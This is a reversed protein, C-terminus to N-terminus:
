DAAAPLCISFRTGKGGREPPSDVDIWGDHEKIIGHSVALGLGTGGKRDKSTYFPEFIKDLHEPLIGVGNDTIALVVYPQEPAVELGPRRRIVKMTEIHIRGGGPMAEIANLLLNILVQQLQDPHGKVRPLGEKRELTRKIRAADFKSELLDLVSLILANLNVAERDVTGVRRRTFDLLRQIIRAIRDAQEAIIKANKQTQPDDARRAIGRARGSIVNLPTGVEHAIEAAIQGLTALKETQSLREELKSRATNQRETEARSERLSYTMENFRAALAGIEDEREQMLVSSLDGHAVDDIGSILKAIPQSVLTRTLVMIAGVVILVVIGLLPLTRALDSTWEERLGSISRTVEVAGAIELGDPMAPNPRRLPLVHVLIDGLVVTYRDLRAERVARLRDLQDSAPPSGDLLRAPLITVTWTGNSRSVAKSLGDANALASDVGQGELGARIVGAVDQAQDTLDRRRSTSAGRLEVFAYVSLTVAVLASTAATIRAGVRV